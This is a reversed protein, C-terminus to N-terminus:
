SQGQYWKVAETKRVPSRPDVVSVVSLVSGPSPRLEAGSERMRQTSQPEIYPKPYSTM